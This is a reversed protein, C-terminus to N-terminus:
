DAPPSAQVTTLSTENAFWRQGFPTTDYANAVAGGADTLLVPTGLHDGAVWWLTSAGALALPQYAQPGDTDPDLWIHEAPATAVTAGYEGILRRSEDYVFNRV